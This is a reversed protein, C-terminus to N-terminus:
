LMRWALPISITLGPQARPAIQVGSEKPQDAPHAPTELRGRRKLYRDRLMSSNGDAKGDWGILSAQSDKGCGRRCREWSDTTRMSIHVTLSESQKASMKMKLDTTECGEGDRTQARAQHYNRGHATIMM